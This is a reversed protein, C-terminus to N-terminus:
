LNFVYQRLWSAIVNSSETEAPQNVAERAEHMNMTMSDGTRM